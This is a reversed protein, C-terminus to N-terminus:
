PTKVYVGNEFDSLAMMLNYTVTMESGSFVGTAGAQQGNWDFDFTIRGDAESYKGRLEGNPLTPFQLV